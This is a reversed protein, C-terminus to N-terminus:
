ISCFYIHLVQFSMCAVYIRNWPWTWPHPFTQLDHLTSTTERKVVM